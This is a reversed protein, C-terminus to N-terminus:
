KDAEIKVLGKVTEGIGKGKASTAKKGPPKAGPAAADGPGGVTLVATTTGGGDNRVLEGQENISNADFNAIMQSLGNGAMTVGFLHDAEKLTVKRLSIAIWQAGQSNEKMMHAAFEANIGDLNQDVEDMLYFPSPEFQQIAFILSIATMSKEGGSLAQLRLVKKGVPQAKMILGGEFPREPNELELFADGGNTLRKYTQQFNENVADFVVMLKGKKKTTIEEVVQILNERQTQLRKVEDLLDNERKTQEEFMELARQNVPGLNNIAREVEALQKRAEDYSRADDPKPEKLNLSQIEVRVQGLEEEIAPLKNRQQFILSDTTEQKTQLNTMKGELDKLAVALKEKKEYLVKSKGSMQSEARTMVSLKGDIEEFRKKHDASETELTTIQALVTILRAELEKAKALVLERQKAATQSASQAELSGARLAHAATELSTVREALEKKTGKLLLKATEERKKEFDAVHADGKTIKESLKALSDELGVLEADREELDKQTKEVKAEFEKKRNELDRVKVDAVDSARSESLGAEVKQIEQRLTVLVGGLDEMHSTIEGVKAEIEALKSIDKGAFKIADKRGQSGGTMAGAAEILDGKLTVLRVGGMHKRAGELDAMVVTDGFVYSFANEYKKNFSVLDLAFGQSAPDKVVMLAKGRPNVGVMKNLPLFTARGLENKRLYDIASAAAADDEVIVNMLRNGAAVQLATEYKEDVKGLEAITGHIGKLMGKRRAALVADVARNLGQGVRESAAELAKLEAHERQIRRLAEELEGMQKTTEAQKKLLGVHKSELEKTAAESGKAEKGTEKLQFLADRVELEYTKLNETLQNQLEKAATFRQQLRDRELTAKHVDASTEEYAIKLKALEANIRMAGESSEGILDRLEKLEKEAKKQAAAKEVSEKELRTQAAELEALERDVRKKETEAERKGATLDKVQDQAYNIREELRVAEAQLERLEEKTREGGPGVLGALQEEIAHQEQLTTHHKKRLEETKQTLEQIQKEYEGVIRASEAIQRELEDKKRFAFLAKLENQQANLDAFKQASDREKRLDGLNRRIEGLVIEVRDLNQETETRRKTASDIDKDFDTIGAIEEIVKRRDLDTMVVLDNVSGQTVINYGEASIRAHKLLDVFEGISAARENIYCYSHYNNPDGRKPAKRIRRTLHVEDAELPLMRDHNDFVLTVECEKAGKGDKGGNFILETLTKARIKRTSRPGLVFLIADGINSKGSGNPGTIATFGPRFPVNLREGFSKFNVMRVEKLHM